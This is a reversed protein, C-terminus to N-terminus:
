LVVGWAYKSSLFILKAFISKCFERCEMLDMEANLPEGGMRGFREQSENGLILRWKQIHAKEDM